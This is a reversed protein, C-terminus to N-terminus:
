KKNKNTWKIICLLLICESENYVFPTCSKMERTTCLTSDCWEYLWVHIYPLPKQRMGDDKGVGAMEGLRLMRQVIWLEEMRRKGGGMTYWCGNILSFMQGKTKPISKNWKAHTQLEIWKGAFAMIKNKKIASYYEMMYM